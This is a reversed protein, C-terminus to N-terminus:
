LPTPILVDVAKCPNSAAWAKNKEDLIKQRNLEDKAYEVSFEAARQEFEALLAKEPEPDTWFEPRFWLLALKTYYEMIQKKRSATTTPSIMEKDQAAVATLTRFFSKKNGLETRISLSVVDEISAESSAATHDTVGSIDYFVSRFRRMAFAVLEFKEKELQSARLAQGLAMMIGDLAMNERNRGDTVTADAMLSQASKGNKIFRSVTPLNQSAAAVESTRALANFFGKTKNNLRDRFFSGASNLTDVVMVTLITKLPGVSDPIISIALSAAGVMASYCAFVFTKKKIFYRLGVKTDVTPPQENAWRTALFADMGEAAANALQEPTCGKAACIQAIQSSVNDALSNFESKIETKQQPTLSPNKDIVERVMETAAKGEVALPTNDSKPTESFLDARVVGSIFCCLVLVYKFKWPMPSISTRAVRPM